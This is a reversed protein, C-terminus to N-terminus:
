CLVSGRGWWALYFRPLQWSPVARGILLQSPCRRIILLANSAVPATHEATEDCKGDQPLRALWLHRPSPRTALM